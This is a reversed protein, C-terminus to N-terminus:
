RQAATKETTYQEKRMAKNYTRGIEVPVDDGLRIYKYKKIQM